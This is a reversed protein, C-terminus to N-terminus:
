GVEEVRAQYTKDQIKISYVKGGGSGTASAVSPSSAAPATSVSPAAKAPEPAAPKKYYQAVQQPFMAYLVATEDDDPLGNKRLEERLKDMGPALEDAPRATTAKQGTKQEALKVIEPDVPAPTKGFRGLALDLTQQPLNKWRGMKVNMMAQTGVIQSTPTVLPIFGLKERVYVVEQLVENWQGMMNHQKLQSVFNSLMGGPIQYILVDEQVKENMPDTFAILEKYVEKFYVSLERLTKEDYFNARAHGRLMEQMLLTDPQASGNAFPAISCDIADAGADVVQYYTVPAFGTTSHSHVIVPIKLKSKLGKVLTVGDGPSLIGAMDKVCISQCGLAEMDLAFQIYGDITHVPSTTFSITGQAHKGNKLVARIATELNRIDNLADFIRFNDMGAKAACTVFAEVVDDPYQTYGVINQGRLLMSHPTKTIKGKLARLRDFPNENVFRLCADITAGGWTELMGFGLSDLKEAVPLMQSLKMRTAALSQHGDRLVTNNFVIKKM